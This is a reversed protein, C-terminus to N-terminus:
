EIGFDDAISDIMDARLKLDIRKVFRRCFFISRDPCSEFSLPKDDALPVKLNGRDGHGVPQTDDRVICFLEITDFVRRYLIPRLDLLCAGYELFLILPVDTQRRQMVRGFSFARSNAM